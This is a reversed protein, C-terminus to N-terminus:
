VSAAPGAQMVKPRLAPRKSPIRSGERLMEEARYWDKEPSGEPCGREEWLQHALKAIIEERSSEEQLPIGLSAPEATEGTSHILSANKTTPNAM